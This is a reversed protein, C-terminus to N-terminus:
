HRIEAGPWKGRVRWVDYKNLWKAARALVFALSHIGPNWM